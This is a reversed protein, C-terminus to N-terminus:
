PTFYLLTSIYLAEYINYYSLFERFPESIAQTYCRSWVTKDAVWVCLGYIGKIELWLADSGEPQYEKRRGM